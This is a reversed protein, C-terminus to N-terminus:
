GVTVLSDGLLNRVKFSSLGQQNTKMSGGVSVLHGFAIPIRCCFRLFTHTISLCWFFFVVLWFLILSRVQVLRQVWLGQGVSMPITALRTFFFVPVLGHLLSQVGISRAILFDGKGLQNCLAFCGEGFIELFGHQNITFGHQDSTKSRHHRFFSPCSTLWISSSCLASRFLLLPSRPLYSFSSLCSPDLLPLNPLLSSLALSSASHHWWAQIFLTFGCSGVAAHPKSLNKKRKERDNCANACM